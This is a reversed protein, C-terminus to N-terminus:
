ESTDNDGQSLTFFMARLFGVGLGFHITPFILPGFLLCELNREKLSLYTCGTLIVLLYLAVSTELISYVTPSALAIIALLGMLFVTAGSLWQVPSYLHHKRAFKFRGKGYRNM